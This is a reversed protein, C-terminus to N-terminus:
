FLPRFSKLDIVSTLPAFHGFRRWPPPHVLRRVSNQCSTTLSLSDCEGHFLSPVVRFLPSSIVEAWDSFDFTSRPTRIEATTTPPSVQVLLYLQPSSHIRERRFSCLIRLEMNQIFYSKCFLYASVRTRGSKDFSSSDSVEGSHHLTKSLINNPLPHRVRWPAISPCARFLYSIVETWDSFDFPVVYLQFLGLLKMPITFPSQQFTFTISM